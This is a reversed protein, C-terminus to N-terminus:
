PKQSPSNVNMASSFMEAEGPVAVTFQRLKLANIGYEGHV